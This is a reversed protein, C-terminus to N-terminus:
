WQPGDHHVAEVGPRNPDRFRDSVLETINPRTLDLGVRPAILDARCRREERNDDGAPPAM